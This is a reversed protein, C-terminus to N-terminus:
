HSGNGGNSGNGGARPMFAELPDGSDKVELPQTPHACRPCDDMRTAQAQLVGALLDVLDGCGNIVTRLVEQNEHNSEAARLAIAVAELASATRLVRTAPSQQDNFAWEAPAIAPNSTLTISM